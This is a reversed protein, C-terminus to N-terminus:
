VNDSSPTVSQLSTTAALPSKRPHRSVLSNERTQCYGPIRQQLWRMLGEHLGSPRKMKVPRGNGESGPHKNLHQMKIVRLGTM